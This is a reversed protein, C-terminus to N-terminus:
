FFNKVKNMLDGAQDLSVKAKVGDIIGNLQDEPLDVGLISELAKVPDSKFKAAFDPENKIKDIVETVKAQIDM